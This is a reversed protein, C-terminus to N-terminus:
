LTRPPSASGPTAPGPRRRSAGLGLGLAALALAGGPEPAVRLDDVQFFTDPSGPRLEIRSVGPVGAPIFQWTGSLPTLGSQGLLQGNDDFALLQLSTAPAGDLDLPRFFGGVFDRPSPLDIFLSGGNANYASTQGSIPVALNGGVPDLLNNTAWGASWDFGFLSSAGLTSFLSSSGFQDFGIRLASAQSPLILSALVLSLLATRARM